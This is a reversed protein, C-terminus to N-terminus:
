LYLETGGRDGVEATIERDSLEAPIASINEKEVIEAIIEPVSEPTMKSYTKDNVMVVPALGCAGLCGVRELSFMKDKTTGGVEVALENSFAKLVGEAGKVHCATGLCVRIMNKGRKELYFQAYFSAVGFVEAFPLKLSKAVYAMVPRSIYGQSKQIEQLVPILAGEKNKHKRLIADLQAKVKRDMQGMLDRHGMTNFGQVEKAM